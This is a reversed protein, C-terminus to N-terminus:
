LKTCMFKIVDLHSPNVCDEASHNIRRSKFSRRLRTDSSLCQQIKLCGGKIAQHRLLKALVTKQCFFLISMFVCDNTVFLVSALWSIDEYGAPYEPIAAPHYDRDQPVGCSQAPTFLRPTCATIASAPIDTAQNALFVISHVCSNASDCFM